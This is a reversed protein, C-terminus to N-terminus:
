KDFTSQNIASGPFRRKIAIHVEATRAQVFHILAAFITIVVVAITAITNVM